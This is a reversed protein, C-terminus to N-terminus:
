EIRTWTQGGCILGGLVCGTVRLHDAGRFRMRSLYVRGTEVDLLSGGEFADGTWRMDQVLVTGFFQPNVQAGGGGTLTGCYATGCPAFTVYGWSGDRAGTQWTGDLVHPPGGSQGLATVPMALCVVFATVFRIM